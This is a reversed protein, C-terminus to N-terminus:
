ADHDISRPQFDPGERTQTQARQRNALAIKTTIEAKATITGARHEASVTQDTPRRSRLAHRGGRRSRRTPLGLGHAVEAPGQVGPAQNRRGEGGNVAARGKKWPDKERTQIEDRRASLPNRRQQRFREVGDPGAHPPSADVDIAFIGTRRGMSVAILAEPKWRWWRAIEDLDTTASYVGHESLPTKDGKSNMPFVPVGARALAQAAGLPSAAATAAVIAASWEGPKLAIPNPSGANWAAKAAKRATAKAAPSAGQPTSNSAPSM